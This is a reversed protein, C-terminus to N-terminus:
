YALSPIVTELRDRSNPRSFFFTAGLRDREACREAFTQAIASKGVGAPGRLWLMRHSRTPCGMWEELTELIRTRTGPHCMPPPFRAGSDMSADPDAYSYLQSLVSKNVSYTIEAREIITASQIAFDHANAFPAYTRNGPDCTALQENAGSSNNNTERLLPESLPVAVNDLTHVPPM